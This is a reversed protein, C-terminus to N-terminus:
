KFGEPRSPRTSEIVNDPIQKISCTGEFHLIAAKVHQFFSRPPTCTTAQNRKGTVMLNLYKLLARLLYVSDVGCQLSRRNSFVSYRLNAKLHQRIPTVTLIYIYINTCIYVSLSLFLSTDVDSSEQTWTGCKRHISPVRSEAGWCMSHVVFALSDLFYRFYILTKSTGCISIFADDGLGTFAPCALETTVFIYSPCFWVWFIARCHLM